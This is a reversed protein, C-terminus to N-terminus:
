CRRPHLRVAPDAPGDDCCRADPDPAAAQAAAATATAAVVEALGFEAAASGALASDREVASLAAVVFPAMKEQELRL